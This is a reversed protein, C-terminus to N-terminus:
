NLASKYNIMEFPPGILWDVLSCFALLSPFLMNFNDGIILNILIKNIVRTKIHMMMEILILNFSACDGRVRLRGYFPSLM